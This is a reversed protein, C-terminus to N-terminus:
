QPGDTREKLLLLLLVRWAAWVEQFMGIRPPQAYVCVIRRPGFLALCRGVVTHGVDKAGHRPGRPRLGNFVVVEVFHRPGSTLRSVKEGFM